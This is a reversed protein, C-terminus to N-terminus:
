TTPTSRRSPSSSPTTSDADGRVGDDDLYTKATFTPAARARCRSPRPRCFRDVRHEVRTPRCRGGPLRPRHHEPVPRGRHQRGHGSRRCGEPVVFKMNREAGVGVVAPDLVQDNRVLYGPPSSSDPIDIRYTGPVLSDPPTQWLGHRADGQLVYIPADGPSEPQRYINVFYNVLKANTLSDVVYGPPRDSASCRSKSERSRCVSRSRDRRPPTTGPLPSSCRTPASRSTRSHPLQVGGPDDGAAGRRDPDSRSPRDREQDPPIRGDQGVPRRSRRRRNGTGLAPLGSGTELAIDLPPPPVGATLTILQTSSIHQYHDVTVTYNGPPLDDIAFTGRNAGGATSARFTLDGTTLTLGANAVGVGTTGSTVTGTLTLTTKTLGFDIGSQAGNVPTRRSEDLYGPATVLLTFTAGITLQPINYSGIDGETLSSTTRSEDGNTATIRSGASRSVTLDPRRPRQRQRCRRQMTLDATPFKGGPEVHGTPGRHRVRAPDGVRHVRGAHQGPRDVLHRGRRRDGRHDQLHAHRRDRRDRRRRAPGNPGRVTGGIAGTAPVLEVDLEVPAGDEPPTVVFSQTDFGPKAFVIEYSHRLAVNPIQWVGDTEPTTELPALPETQRIPNLTAAGPPLARASWIKTAESQQPGVFGQIAAPDPTEGLAIPTLTITINTPTATPRSPAACCHRLRHPAAATPVTPATRPKTALPERVTRARVTPAPVVMPRRTASRTGPPMSSRTPRETATPTSAPSSTATPSPSSTPSATVTPTSPSSRPRSRATLTRTTAAIRGALACGRRDRRAVVRRRHDRGAADAGPSRVLPRQIYAATTSTSSARGSATIVCTTNHRSVAVLPATGQGAGQHAGARGAAAADGTPQLPDRVEPAEASIVLDVPVPENNVVDLKFKARRRGRM